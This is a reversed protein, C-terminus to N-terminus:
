YELTDEIKSPSELLNFDILTPNEFELYSRERERSTIYGFSFSLSSILFVGLFLIIERKNKKVFVGIKSLM